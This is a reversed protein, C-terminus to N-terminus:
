KRYSALKCDGSNAVEASFVLAGVSLLRVECTTEVVICSESYRSCSYLEMMGPDCNHSMSVRQSPLASCIFTMENYTQNYNQFM